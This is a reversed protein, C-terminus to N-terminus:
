MKPLPSFEATLQLSVLAQNSMMLYTLFRKEQVNLWKQINQHLYRAESRHTIIYCLSNCKEMYDRKSKEADQLTPTECDIWVALRDGYSDMGRHEACPCNVRCERTKITGENWQEWAKSSTTVLEFKAGFKVETKFNQLVLKYVRKGQGLRQLNTACHQAHYM